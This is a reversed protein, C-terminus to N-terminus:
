LAEQPPLSHRPAFSLYKRVVRGQHSAKSTALVEREDCSTDDADKPAPVSALTGDVDRERRLCVVVLADPEYVDGEDRGLWMDM